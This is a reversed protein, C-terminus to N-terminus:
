RRAWAVAPLPTLGRTQDRALVRITPLNSPWWHPSFMAVLPSFHHGRNPLFLHGNVRPAATLSLPRQGHSLGPPRKPLVVAQLPPAASHSVGTTAPDHQETAGAESNGPTHLPTLSAGVSSQALPPSEGLSQKDISAVSDERTQLTFLGGLRPAERM